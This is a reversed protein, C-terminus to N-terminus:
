GVGANKSKNRVENIFMATVAIGGIISLIDGAIQMGNYVPDKSSKLNAYKDELSMRDVRRKLEQDNMNLARSYNEDYSKRKFLSGAGKATDGYERGVQDKRIGWHMGKVGYHVLYEKNDM